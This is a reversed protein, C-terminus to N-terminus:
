WKRWGPFAPAFRIHHNIATEEEVLNFGRNSKVDEQVEYLVQYAHYALFKDEKQALFQQLISEGDQGFGKLSNGVRRWGFAADKRTSDDGYEAFLDALENQM